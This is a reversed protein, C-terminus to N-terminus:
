APEFDSLDSIRVDRLVMEGDRDEFADVRDDCWDDDAKYLQAQTLFVWLELGGVHQCKLFTPITM